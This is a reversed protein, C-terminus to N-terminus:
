LAYARRHREYRAFIGGIADSAEQYTLTSTAAGPRDARLPRM